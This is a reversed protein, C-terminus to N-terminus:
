NDQLAQLIPLYDYSGTLRTLTKHLAPDLAAVQQVAADIRAGELSQLAERLEERLAPPLVQLMEPTLTGSSETEAPTENAYTYEVGLQRVLCEYIENFRYPKRIFDDMGAGIMEARQETFASATVAVIKVEKGGPLKRIRRTAELGDMVPMRRDMWVLHPHWSQYLAVGQEGNEAVKAQIGIDQMLKALLLKNDRQDEVILVRYEPQGPALGTVERTVISDPRRVESAEVPELPLEVRFVSGQGPTSEVSIKGGMLQAYQRALPLGLGTGKQSADEALQVFPEFIKAQDEPSIGVGSDEIEILLHSQEANPKVGFRVTVGGQQTFKVANGVLNILVQRLRAEDGNIYRPVKSSQELLLRLGKDQARLQMMDAVDRVLAGLDLPAKEVQMRGAEIKSMELVDNILTLLHEGSRNIINLSESHGPQLQPDKRLMSSFGLIANLPTRLEHSMNALFVSKARNATEAANRALVLDATRQQVEEELHDKYQLLAEEAQKRKTIDTLAAIFGTVRGDTDYEPVYSAHVTRAEGASTLTIDYENAQGALADEMHPRAQAFVEDGLLERACGGVIDGPERAFMEAYPRNVFKYRLERDCQAILVPVHDAVFHPQAEVRKREIRARLVMLGFAMDGALEELLRTEEPTFANPIAAYINFIGFVQNNKDKLPLAISSRYGRRLAAEGWPAANPDTSFDQISVSRGSRIANGSPGHGRETDAWTLRAQELYGSEAGARAVLRITQAEDTEPYGAWAMLYGADECVIRCIEDLLEQESGARVLVQNCNSIARLERNLRRLAEEDQKRATIDMVIGRVQAVTGSADRVPEGRALMWRTGGEKPVMELEMEYAIGAEAARAIASSLREWSEPTFLKMSETYLPPPLAPDFGYMKYLEESWYVEGTALTMHWSGLHAIRQADKLDAESQRLADQARKQETIDINVGVMRLPKHQSDYYTKSAAKIIRVSGDPRIIRFEPAYEREGRLAAQIEGDTSQQDDPHLTHLWADYAGGFDEKRISYLAYMSEEWVLENKVVDWDWIGINGATTALHLREESARLLVETHQRQAIEAALSENSQRLSRERSAVADSMTKFGALVPAFEVYTQPLDDKRYRGEVMDGTAGIFLDVPKKLLRSLIWRTAGFLAVILLLMTGISALLLQRDRAEYGSLTLGFEVSGINQGNHEIAFQHRIQNGNPKAHQYVVRQQDDRITMSAIEANSAFASGINEILEDDVNWLPWELAERLYSVYETARSEYAAEAERTFYLYNFLNVAISVLSVLVVMAITLERYLSKPKGRSLDM